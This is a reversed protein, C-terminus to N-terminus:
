GGFQGAAILRAIFGADEVARGVGGVRTEEWQRVVWPPPLIWEIEPPYAPWAEATDQGLEARALHEALCQTWVARAAAAKARGVDEAVPDLGFVRVAHPPDTEAMVFLTGGPPEGRVFELGRPYMAAQVDAGHEFCARGWTAPTALGGTTKLDLLPAAPDDPLWDIRARCWLEGDEHWIVSQEPKGATFMGTRAQWKRLAAITRMANDYAVTKLPIRGAALADAKLAKAANTRWSDVPCHAIKDEGQLFAAHIATGTDMDEDGSGSSRAPSGGLRPHEAYAHAPSATVIRVAISRSLSPVVCPDAHYEREPLDYIGPETITM